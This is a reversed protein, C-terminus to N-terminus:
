QQETEVETPQVDTPAPSEPKVDGAEAQSDSPAKTDSVAKSKKESPKFEPRRGGRRSSSKRNSYYSNDAFSGYSMGPPLCLPCMYSTSLFNKTKKLYLYEILLRRPALCILTDTGLSTCSKM